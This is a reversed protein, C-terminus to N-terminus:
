RCGNGQPTLGRAVPLDVSVDFQGLKVLVLLTVIALGRLPRVGRESQDVRGIKGPVLAAPPQGIQLVAQRTQM